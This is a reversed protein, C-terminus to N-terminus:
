CTLMLVDHSYRHTPNGPDPERGVGCAGSVGPLWQQYRGKVLSRGDTALHLSRGQTLLLGHADRLFVKYLLLYQRLM